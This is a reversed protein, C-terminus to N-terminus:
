KSQDSAEEDWYIAPCNDKYMSYMIQFPLKLVKVTRTTTQGISNSLSSTYNSIVSLINDLKSDVTRLIPKYRSEFRGFVRNIFEPRSSNKIALISKIMLFIFSLVGLIITIMVLVNSRADTPLSVWWLYGFYGVFSLFGIGILLLIVITLQKITYTYKHIFSIDFKPLKISKLRSYYNSLKDFVRDIMQGFLNLVKKIYKYMFEFVPTLKDLIADIRKGIKALRNDIRESRTLYKDFLNDLKYLFSAEYEKRNYDKYWMMLVNVNKDYHKTSSLSHGTLKSVIYYDLYNYNGSDRRPMYLNNHRHHKGIFFESFRDYEKLKRNFYELPSIGMEYAERLNKEFGRSGNGGCLVDKRIMDEFSRRKSLISSIFSYAYGDLHKINKSVLSYAVKADKKDKIVSPTVDNDLSKKIRNQDKYLQKFLWQSGNMIAIPFRYFILHLPIMVPMILVNFVIFWFYPCMNKFEKADIDYIYKIYRSHWSDSKLNFSDFM